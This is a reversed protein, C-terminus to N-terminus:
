RPSRSGSRTATSSCTSRIGLMHRLSTDVSPPRAASVDATRTGMMETNGPFTMMYVSSVMPKYNYSVTGATTTKVTALLKFTSSNKPRAYVNIPLGYYAKSDIGLLSGRLTITGGYNILTSTTSIGTKMGLLRKVAPQSSYHGPRDLIWAAYTYTVGQALGTDKVATGTGAYVLTGTTPTPVTTGVNRRVIVQDLDTMAPIRWSLSAALYGGTVDFPAVQPPATDPTTFRSNVTALPAGDAERVGTVRILYPTNDLMPASPTIEAVRSAPDYAVTAGVTTGTKGNLLRVTSTTVTDAVVDRAFKVTPHMTLPADGRDAPVVEWVPWAEGAPASGAGEETVTLTYGVTNFWSGNNNRVVFYTTGAPASVYATASLKVPQGCGSAPFQTVAHALSRLEGDYVDLRPSFNWWRACDFEPGTLTVKLNRPV